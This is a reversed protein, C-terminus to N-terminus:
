YKQSSKCHIRICYRFEPNTGSDFELNQKWIQIGLLQMAVNVILNKKKGLEDWFSLM